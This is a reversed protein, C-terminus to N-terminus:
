CATPPGRLCDVGFDGQHVIDSAIEQSIYYVPKSFRYHFSLPQAAVDLDYDCAFCDDDIHNPHSDQDHHDAHEQALQHDCEHVFSRPAILMGFAVLLVYAVLRKMM